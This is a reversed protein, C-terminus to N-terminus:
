LEMTKTDDPAGLTQVVLERAILRVPGQIVTRGLAPSGQGRFLFATKGATM